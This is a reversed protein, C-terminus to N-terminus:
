NERSFKANQALRVVPRRGPKRSVTLSGRAELSKIARYAAKRETINADRLVDASVKVENSHQMDGHARLVLLLRDTPSQVHERIWGLPIPGKLFRADRLKRSGKSSATDVRETPVDRDPVSTPISAGDDM